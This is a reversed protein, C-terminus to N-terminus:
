VRYVKSLIGSPVNQLARAEVNCFRGQNRGLLGCFGYCLGEFVWVGLGLGQVRLGSAGPM